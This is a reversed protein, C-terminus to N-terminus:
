EDDDDGRISKSFERNANYSADIEAMQWLLEWYYKSRETIISDPSIKKATHWLIYRDKGTRWEETDMASRTLEGKEEMLIVAKIFQKLEAWMKHRSKRQAKLRM